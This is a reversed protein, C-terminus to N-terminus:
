QSVDKKIIKIGDIQRGEKIKRHEIYIFMSILVSFFNHFFGHGTSMGIAIVCIIYFYEPHTKFSKYSKLVLFLYIGIMLLFPVIGAEGIVMLYSNHVGPGYAKSQLKNYGNGLLPKDMIRDFYAAWTATRSDKTITSTQVSEEDFISELASFRETNLTLGSSFTFVLILVLGGIVPAILNKRSQYIAIFNVFLWIVIFTRSFTLVGALTFVFQGALRLRKDKVAYSLAYGLLCISGAYNPNLYFGSFRGYNASFAANATPFIFANIIISLAGIFFILYIEKKTTRYLVEGACVVVIMFRVFDKIYEIDNETSFNLSSLTFYLIGLLIFPFVLRHKQKALLFYIILLLSSGYSSISGMTSGWYALMYSPINWLILLLITYRIIEM